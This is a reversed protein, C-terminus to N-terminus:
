VHLALTSACQLQPPQPHKPISCFLTVNSHNQLTILDVPPHTVPTRTHTNTHKPVQRLDNPKADIATPEKNNQTILSRTERNITM